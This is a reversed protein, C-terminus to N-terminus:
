KVILPTSAPPSKCDECIEYGQQNVKGDNDFVYVYLGSLTDRSEFQGLVLQFEIKESSWSTPRQIEYDTLDAYNAADGIAVRQLSSDIYIDDIEGEQLKGVKGNLGLLAVTPSWQGGFDESPDFDFGTFNDGNLFFDARGKETDLAVELHNWDGGNLPKAEWNVVGMGTQHMQTWSLRIGDKGYPDEWIRIYKQSGPSEYGSGSGGRGENPFIVTAGSEAGRITQGKLAGSNSGPFSANILNDRDIGIFVGVDRGDVLLKELRSFTGSQTERSFAWYSSPDFKPKYWWSIYLKKNDVPTEFGGYANPWGLFNNEGEFYYHAQSSPYRPARGSDIMIALSSKEWLSITPDSSRIVLEGDDVNSYVENRRGNEYADEVQDFLVPASQTKSGFGSGMVIISDLLKSDNSDLSVSGISPQALVQGAMCFIGSLGLVPFLVKSVSICM